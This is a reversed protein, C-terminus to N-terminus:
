RQYTTMMDNLSTSDVIEIKSELCKKLYIYQAYDSIDRSKEGM